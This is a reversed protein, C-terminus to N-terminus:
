RTANLSPTTKHSTSYSFIYSVYVCDRKMHCDAITTTTSRLRRWVSCVSRGVSRSPMFPRTISRTEIFRDGVFHALLLVDDDIERGDRGVSSSSGNLPQQQHLTQSCCINCPVACLGMPAFMGRYQGCVPFENERIQM